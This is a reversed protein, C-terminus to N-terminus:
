ECQERGFNDEETEDDSIVGTIDAELGELGSIIKEVEETCAKGGGLLSVMKLAKLASGTVEQIGTKTRLLNDQM